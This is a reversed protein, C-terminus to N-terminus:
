PKVGTDAWKAFLHEACLVTGNEWHFALEDAQKGAFVKITAPEGTDRIEALVDAVLRVARHRNVHEITRNKPQNDGFFLKVRM